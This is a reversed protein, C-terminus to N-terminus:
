CWTCRERMDDHARRRARTLCKLQGITVEREDVSSRQGLLNKGHGEGALCGPLDEIAQEDSERLGRGRRVLQRFELAMDCPRRKVTAPTHFEELCQQAVEM